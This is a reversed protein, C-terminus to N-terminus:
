LPGSPTNLNLYTEVFRYVAGPMELIWSEGDLKVAALASEAGVQSGFDITYNAGNKMSITVQHGDDSFGYKPRTADGTAIWAAASFHCLARVSEEIALENIIGQSGPALSWEHAGRRLLQRTKGKKRITVSAVDEIKLDWVTRDRFQVPFRPLRLFESSTVAYVSAEDLRRAFVRDNQNTGFVVEVLVRNTGAANTGTPAPVGLVVFKLSPNALGFNPLDGPTVVDKTFEAIHMGALTSLTETLLAADAPWGFPLVRWAGNTIQVSFEAEGEVQLGAVPAMPGVLHRSRFDNVSGRWASFDERAATVVAPRNHAKAFVQQADNTPSRGVRIGSTVNTGLKLLIELEPAQLGFPDLDAKPDDTIFRAVRITELQQLLANVRDTDARAGLPHIMRWIGTSANRELEFATPGNNVALRNFESPRLHILSTDRLDNAGRPIFQLLSADVVHVAGQGVVKLFVQDGPATRGGLVLQARYDPQEVTISALPLKFGFEEEARPRDKLEGPAISTAPLLKELRELFADVLHAQAPYFLPRSMQWVGNTREVRIEPQDGLYITVSQVASAKLNPLIELKAPTATKQKFHHLAALSALVLAVMSYIWLSRSRM